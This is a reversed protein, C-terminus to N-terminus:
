DFERKSDYLAVFATAGIIYIAANLAFVINWCQDTGDLIKGTTYVGATGIMVSPLSTISYLLGTWKPGAKEQNAAGYGAANFSQMGVAVAFLAEAVIPHEPINFALTFLCLAPGFLALGQFIRRVQTKADDTPVKLSKIITDAISGACLGGM